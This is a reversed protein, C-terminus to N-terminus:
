HIIHPILSLHMNALPESLSTKSLDASFLWSHTTGAPRQTPVDLTLLTPQTPGSAEVVSGTPAGTQALSLSLVLTLVPRPGLSPVGGAVAPNKKFIWFFTLALNDRYFVCSSNSTTALEWEVWRLFVELKRSLLRSNLSLM